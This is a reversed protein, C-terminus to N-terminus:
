ELEQEQWPSMKDEEELIPTFHCSGVVCKLIPSPTASCPGPCGAHSSASTNETVPWLESLSGYWNALHQAICHKECEGKSLSVWCSSLLLYQLCIVSGILILHMAIHMHIQQASPSIYWSNPSQTRKTCAWWWTKKVMRIKSPDAILESHLEWGLTCAMAQCREPLCM